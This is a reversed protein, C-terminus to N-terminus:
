KYFSTTIFSLNIILSFGFLIGITILRDRLIYEKSKNYPKEFYPKKFKRENSDGKNSRIIKGSPFERFFFGDNFSAVLEHSSNRFVYFKGINRKSDEIAFEEKVTPQFCCEECCNPYNHNCTNLAHGCSYKLPYISSKNLKYLFMVYNDSLISM